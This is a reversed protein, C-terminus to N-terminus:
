YKETWNQRFLTLYNQSSHSVDVRRTNVQHWWLWSSQRHSFIWRFVKEVHELLHCTFMNQDNQASQAVETGGRATVLDTKGEEELEGEDSSNSSNYASEEVRSHLEKTRVCERSSSPCLIGTHTKHMSCSLESLSDRLTAHHIQTWCKKLKKVIHLLQHRKQVKSILQLARQPECHQLSFFKLNLLQCRKWCTLLM